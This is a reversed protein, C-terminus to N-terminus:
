LHKLHFIKKVLKRYVPCNQLKPHGPLVNREKLRYREVFIIYENYQSLPFNIIIKQLRTCLNGISLLKMVILFNKMVKYTM